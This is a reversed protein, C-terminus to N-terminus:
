MLATSATVCHCTTPQALLILSAGVLLPVQLALAPDFGRTLLAEAGYRVLVALFILAPWRLRVTAINDLRGGNLLGLALGLVIGGLLV